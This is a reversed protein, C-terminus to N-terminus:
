KPVDQIKSVKAVLGLFEQRDVNSSVESDGLASLLSEFNAGGKFPLDSLAVM